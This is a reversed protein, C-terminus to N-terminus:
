PSLVERRGGRPNADGNQDQRRERCAQLECRDRSARVPDILVADDGTETTTRYWFRGDPLWTPRVGSHLVLPTTNYSMFREARAADAPTRARPADTRQARAGTTAVVCLAVTSGISRSFPM